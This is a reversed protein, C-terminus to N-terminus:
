PDGAREKQTFGIQPRRLTRIRSESPDGDLYFPMIMRQEEQVGWFGGEILPLIIGEPQAFANKEIITAIDQAVIPDHLIAVHSVNNRFMVNLQDWSEWLCVTDDGVLADLDFGTPKDISYVTRLGTGYFSWYGWPALRTSRMLRKDALGHDIWDQTIYVNGLFDRMEAANTTDPALRLMQDLVNPSFANLQEIEAPTAFRPDPLLSAISPTTAVLRRILNKAPEFPRGSNIWRIVHALLFNTLAPAATAAMLTFATDGEGALAKVASWNGISALPSGMFIIGKCRSSQGRLILERYIHVAVNGGMSHAVLFFQDHRVADLITLAAQSPLRRWDYAVNGVFFKDPPLAAALRGSLVDYVENVQGPRLDDDDGRWAVLGLAQLLAQSAIELNTDGWVTSGNPRRLSSMFLGPLIYVGVQTPM